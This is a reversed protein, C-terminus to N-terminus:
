TKIYEKKVWGRTRVQVEYWGSTEQVINVMTGQSLPPAVTSANRMPSSRINLKSATVMGLDESTVSEESGDDSRERYLVRDRLKDLPFAPGPDIKRRPSIEEHGLISSIEYAEILDVCIDNVRDIQKETYRHWYYPESENRHVAEIVDSEPYVRGFWAIYQDSSKTLKGANDIEIGISYKNFGTRGGYSSKGAHWAIKNFPLLQTVVGDRSVVLHASAKNRKDCLTKISSEASSGATYHIIITDPLGADFSGGQNPTKEFAVEEEVFRHNRIKM